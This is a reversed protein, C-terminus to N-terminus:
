EEVTEEVGSSEATEEALEEECPDEEVAEVEECCAEKSQNKKGGKEHWDIKEGCMVCFEGSYRGLMCGCHPCHVLILNLGLGMMVLGIWLKGSVEGKFLIAAILAAVLFGLALLKKQALSM